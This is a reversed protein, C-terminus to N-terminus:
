TILKNIKIWKKKFRNYKIDPDTWVIGMCYKSFSMPKIRFRSLIDRFDSHSCDGQKLELIMLNEISKKKGTRYNMFSLNFDITVRETCRNNVLTIRQFNNTLVPNLTESDFLSNEDLFLKESNLENISTLHSKAVPIRMKNTRGRNNKSKIELFSLDSDIYSRIRIKQRNLKGNQHMAFMDLKSTDLYQTSYPAIYSGNIVQLKYCPLMAELLEPLLSLSAVFKYDMRNMLRIDKMEELSIANMRKLVNEYNGSDM